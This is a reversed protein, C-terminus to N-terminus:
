KLKLPITVKTLMEEEPFPPGNLYTEYCDGAIEFGKNKIWEMMEDYVPGLDNYDGRFICFVSKGEPMIKFQIDGKSPLKKAIPFGIEMDINNENLNRFDHYGIYPVDTSIEGLEEIYSGIQSFASGLVQPIETVNTKKRIVLVPQGIHKILIFDTIRPM